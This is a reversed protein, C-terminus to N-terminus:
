EVFGTAVSVPVPVVDVKALTSPTIAEISAPFVFRL